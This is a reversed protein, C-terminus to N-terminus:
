REGGDTGTLLDFAVPDVLRLRDMWDPPLYDPEIYLSNGRIMVQVYNGVARLADDMAAVTAEDAAAIVAATIPLARHERSCREREAAIAPDNREASAALAHGARTARDCLDSLEDFLWIVSANNRWEKSRVAYLRYGALGDDHAAFEHQGAIWKLAMWPPMADGPIVKVWEDQGLPVMLLGPPVDLAVAFLLLESLKVKRKGNEIRNIQAKDLPLGLEETLHEALERQTWQKARRYMAVREAVVDDVDKVDEFM